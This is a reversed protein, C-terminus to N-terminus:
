HRSGSLAERFKAVREAMPTPTPLQYEPGVPEVALSVFRPGPLALTAAARCQWESLDDFAAVSRIGAARALAAFDTPVGDAATAQGGTVEYIGNDLVILSLNTAGSAAITVLAGLSMLTCGDGNFALVQCDPRALALGLALAPAHGMASPIYQFDLPHRSLKPWERASGMTTVVIENTRWDALVQLAPVLPMHKKDTTM